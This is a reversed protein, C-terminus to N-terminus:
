DMWLKEEECLEKIKNKIRFLRSKVTNEKIFMTEAIERYTFDELYCLMLITREDPDLKKLILDFNIKSNIVEFENESFDINFLTKDDIEDIYISKKRKYIKKCENILIRIIWTKFYKGKKLKKISKFAMIMTEQIADSIDDDNSLRMRAIKYLENKISLILQTFAEKDGNKAQEVLAEM